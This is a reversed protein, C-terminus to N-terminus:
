QKRTSKENYRGTKRLESGEPDELKKKVIVQIWM